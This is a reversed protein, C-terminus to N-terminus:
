AERLLAELHRAVGDDTNPAATVCDALSATVPDANAMAVSHGAWAFMARDNASDGFVLVEDAGIGLHACLRALGAAKDLGAPGVEAADLGTHGVGYAPAVTRVPDRLWPVLEAERVAPHFVWLKLWEPADFDLVDGIVDGEPEMPVLEMFGAEFVLHQESVLGFGIAPDLSRLHGVVSAVMGRDITVRDIVTEDAAEGSYGVVLAGNTVVSYRMAPGAQLVITRTNRRYRGTACAVVVGAAAAAELAARTRPTVRAEDDILTGDLDCAILRPLMGVPHEIATPGSPRHGTVPGIAAPVTATPRSTPGCEGPAGTPPIM